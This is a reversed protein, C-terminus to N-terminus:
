FSVPIPYKEFSIMRTFHCLETSCLVARLNGLVSSNGGGRGGRRGGGDGEGGGEMRQSLGSAGQHSNTQHIRGRWPLKSEGLDARSCRGGSQAALPRTWGEGRPSRWGGFCAGPCARGGGRMWGGGGLLWASGCRSSGKGGQKSRFCKSERAHLDFSAAGCGCCTSLKTLPSPRIEPTM